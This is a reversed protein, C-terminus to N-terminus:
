LYVNESEMEIFFMNKNVYRSIKLLQKRKIGTSGIM